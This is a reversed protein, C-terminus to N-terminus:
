IPQATSIGTAPTAAKMQSPIKMPMVWVRPINSDVASDDRVNKTPTVTSMGKMPLWPRHSDIIKNKAIRPRTWVAM